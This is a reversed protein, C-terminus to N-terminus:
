HKNGGQLLNRWRRKAYALVGMKDLIAGCGLSAGRSISQLLNVAAPRFRPAFIYVSAEEWCRTGYSKKYEADGFGFDLLEIEADDCINELVKLFLVTGVQFDKWKPDFGIQEMFYNADYRTGAQFACPQHDVFLVSFRLWDRRAATTLMNRVLLKDVFGSGLAYQYTKASIDSAAKIAKDLDDKRRYTIVEIQGLYQKELRRIYRRLNNRHRATRAQYFDDMSKPMDMVWHPEHKLFHGRCAFGPMTRAYHYLSLNTKLHNFFIVDVNHSRFTSMLESVAKACVGNNKQGLIGGYEISLCKLSPSFITKYGFKINFQCNEISGIVMTAPQGNRKMLMVYPEVEDAKAKVISLYRDIDANIIPYPEDSQMQEWVPRIREIEELNRAVIVQGDDAPQLKSSKNVVKEYALSSGSQGTGAFGCKEYLRIANTNNAEVRLSIADRGFQKTREVCFELLRAALGMRRMHSSVAILELWTASCVLGDIDGAHNDKCPRHIAKSIKRLIKTIFLKPCTAFAFLAFLPNRSLRCKEKNYRSVDTLLMSFGAPQGDLLCVWVECSTLQLTSKWWKRAYFAPGQWKLSDPFSARCIKILQDIDECGSRRIRVNGYNLSNINSKNM